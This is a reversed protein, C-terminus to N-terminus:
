GTTILIFNDDYMGSPFKKMAIARYGKSKYEADPVYGNFLSESRDLTCPLEKLQAAHSMLVDVHAKFQWVGTPSVNIVTIFYYRGYRPIYAYNAGHLDSGTLHFEPEFIDDLNKMTVTYTGILNADAGSDILTKTMNKPDDTITYLKINM